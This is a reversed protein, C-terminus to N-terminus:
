EKAKLAAKVREDAKRRRFERQNKANRAKQCEPLDCYQQTRKNRIFFRGCNHCCILIGEPRNEAFGKKELPPDESLMRALTYWAIDFVSTVDAAFVLTKTEPNRKLRLRFDPICDILWDQLVEFDDYPEVAFVGNPPQLEPHTQMYENYIRMEELIDGNAASVDIDPIEINHKYHEFISPAEFHRGEHYLNYAKENDLVCLAEMAIYLRAANYLKELDKMFQAITFAADQSLLKADISAIDFEKDNLARYLYDVQYPHMHEKCWVIILEYYPTPEDFDDIRRALECLSILIDKGTMGGKPNMDPPSKKNIVPQTPFEPDDRSVWEYEPFRIHHYVLQGVGGIEGFGLFDTSLDAKSERYEDNWSYSM